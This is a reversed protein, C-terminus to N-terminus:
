CSGSKQSTSVEQVIYAVLVHASEVGLLYEEVRSEGVQRVVHSEVGVGIDGFWETVVRDVSYVSVVPHIGIIADRWVFSVDDSPHPVEDVAVRVVMRFYFLPQLLIFPWPRRPPLIPDRLVDRVIAKANRSIGVIELNDLNSRKLSRIDNRPSLLNHPIRIPYIAQSPTRKQM